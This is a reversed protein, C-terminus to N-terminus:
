STQSERAAVQLIAKTAARRVSSARDSGAQRRLLRLTEQDDARLNGLATMAECRVEWDSDDARKQLLTLTESDTAWGDGLAVVAARRVSADQDSARERLLAFAKPDGAWGDGLAVV